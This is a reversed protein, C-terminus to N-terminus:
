MTNINHRMREDGLCTFLATLFMGAYILLLSDWHPMKNQTDSSFAGEIGLILLMVALGM